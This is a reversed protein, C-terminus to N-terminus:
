VGATLCPSCIAVNQERHCLLLTKIRVQMFVLLLGKSVHYRSWCPHPPWHQTHAASLVLPGPMCGSTYPSM